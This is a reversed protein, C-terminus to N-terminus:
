KTEPEVSFISDTLGKSTRVTKRDPNLILRYVSGGTEVRVGVAGDVAADSGDTVPFREFRTAKKSGTYPEYLVIFDADKAKRSLLIFEKEPTRYQYSWEFGHVVDLPRDNLVRMSLHLNKLAREDTIAWDCSLEDNTSGSSLNSVMEYGDTKGLPESRPKMALQIGSLGNSHDPVGHFWHDYVHESDSRMMDILICAGDLVSVARWIRVGPYIRDNFVVSSSSHEGEEFFLQKSVHPMYHDKFYDKMGSQNKRDVVITSHSASQIQWKHHLDTSGWPFHGPYSQCRYGGFYLGLMMVSFSGRNDPIGWKFEADFTGDRWPRRLISLGACPFNVSPPRGFDVTMGPTKLAEGDILNRSAYVRYTPDPYHKSAKIFLRSQANPNFPVSWWLAGHLLRDVSADWTDVGIRYLMDSMELQRMTDNSYGHEKPIGDGYAIHKRLLFINKPGDVAFAVLPAHGCTLGTALANKTIAQQRHQLNMRYDTMLVSIPIFFNKELDQSDESSVAGCGKLIDYAEVLNIMYIAEMYKSFQIRGRDITEDSVDLDLWPWTFYKERYQRMISLSGESFRADGTLAYALALNRAATFMASHQNTRWDLDLDVGEFDVDRYEGGVPCRHRDPGEYVLACRHETCYYYAATWGQGDPIELGGALAKEAQAIWGDGERKGWDTTKYRDRIADLGGADFVTVPNTQREPMKICPLSIRDSSRIVGEESDSVGQVSFVPLFWECYLIPVDKVDHGELRLVATFSASDGPAISATAPSISGFAMRGKWHDLRASVTRAKSDNNAVVIPYEYILSGDSDFRSTYEVGNWRVDLRKKALRVNKITIRRTAEEEPYGSRVAWLNFTLRPRETTFHTDRVIEPVALDIHVTQWGPAPLEIDVPRFVRRKEGPREVFVMVDASGGEINIDFKGLGYKEFREGEPLPLSFLVRDGLPAEWVISGDANWSLRDTDGDLLICNSAPAVPLELREKSAGGCSMITSLVLAASTMFMCIVMFRKM